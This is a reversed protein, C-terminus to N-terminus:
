YLFGQVYSVTNRPGTVKVTVRYMPSASLTVVGGSQTADKVAQSSSSVTAAGFLCNATTAVGTARCMRQIVYRIQNGASDVGANIDVGTAAASAGTTWTTDAALSLGNSTAYYGQSANDSQLAATSASFLWSSANNVAVEAAATSAQKFSLNGAIVVATDVTRILSVAAMIMAALMILAIFLAAGRQNAPTQKMGIAAIPKNM